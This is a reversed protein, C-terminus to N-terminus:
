FDHQKIHYKGGSIRENNAYRKGDKVMDEFGKRYYAAVNFLRPDRGLKIEYGKQLAKYVLAEHFQEPIAPTEDM